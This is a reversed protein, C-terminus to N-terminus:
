KIDFDDLTRYIRYRLYKGQQVFKELQSEVQYGMIKEYPSQETEKYFVVFPYGQKLMKKYEREDDMLDLLDAFLSEEDPNLEPFETKPHEAYYEKVTKKLREEIEGRRDGAQYFDIDAMGGNGSDNYWGVKKGDVYINGQAGPWDRGQFTKLGKIQFGKISAM